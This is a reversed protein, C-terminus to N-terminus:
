HLINRLVFLLNAPREAMRRMLYPYWQLGYPVYVRMNYGQKVLREQLDRRVGYLMQFEFADKRIGHDRAFKCAANVIEEDHTAIAPCNGRMLFIMMLQVFSHDVDSKNQYAVTHPEKYAGKVLRVRVEQAILQEVDKKSRYLCSQMVTGVHKFQQHMRLTIDITREIYVSSEMDICVFLSHKQAQRLVTMLNEECLERSIDLGLATLKVSINAAVGARRILAIDHAYIQATNRAEKEETVNEGLYDLAVQMGHQNLKHVAQVAEGIEEGAVFRRSASRTARNQVVFDHLRRNQALYLLTDKLLMSTSEEKNDRVM